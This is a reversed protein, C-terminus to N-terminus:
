GDSGVLRRLESHLGAMEQEVLSRLRVQMELTHEAERLRRGIEGGPGLKTDWMELRKRLGDAKKRLAKAQEEAKKRQAQHLQKQAGLSDIARNLESSRDLLSTIEKADGRNGAAKVQKMIASREAALLKLEGNVRNGDQQAEALERLATELESQM